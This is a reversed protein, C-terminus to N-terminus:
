PLLEVTWEEGVRVMPKRVTVVGSAADYSASVGGVTQGGAKRVLVERPAVAQGWFFIREIMSAAAAPAGAEGM